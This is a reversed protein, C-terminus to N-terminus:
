PALRKRKNQRYFTNNPTNLEGGKTEADYNYGVENSLMLSLIFFKCSRQITYYLKRTNVRM